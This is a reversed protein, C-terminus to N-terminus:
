HSEWAQHRHYIDQSSQGSGAGCANGRVQLTLTGGSAGYRGDPLWLLAQAEQPPRDSLGSRQHQVDQTQWAGRSRDAFPVRGLNAPGRADLSWQLGCGGLANQAFGPQVPQVQDSWVARNGPVPGDGASAQQTGM